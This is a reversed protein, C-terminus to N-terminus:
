PLKVGESLNNNNKGAVLEKFDPMTLLNRSMDKGAEVFPTAIVKSSNGSKTKKAIGSLYRGWVDVSGIKESNKADVVDIRCKLDLVYNQTDGAEKKELFQVMILRDAKIRDNYGFKYDNIVINDEIDSFVCAMTYEDQRSIVNCYQVNADIMKKIYEGTLSKAPAYPEIIKYGCSRMMLELEKVIQRMENRENERKELLAIKKTTEELEVSDNKTLTKLRKRLLTLSESDMSNQTAVYTAACVPSEKETIKIQVEPYAPFDPLKFVAEEKKQTACSSFLLTLFICILLNKIFSM